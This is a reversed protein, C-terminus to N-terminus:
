NKEKNLDPDIENLIEQKQLEYPLKSTKAFNPHDQCIIFSSDLFKVSVGANYKTVVENIHQFEGCVICM